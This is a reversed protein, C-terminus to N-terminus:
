TASKLWRMLFEENLDVNDLRTLAARKIWKPGWSDYFSQASDFTEGTQTDFIVPGSKFREYVMSHLAGPGFNVSVEGRAGVPQDKIAKMIGVTMDGDSQVATRGIGGGKEVLDMLPTTTTSGYKKRVAEKTVKIVAALPGTANPPDLDKTTAGVLGIANQGTGLSSKTAAVDYGRRRMEYAFTCRRCNQKTGLGGYGPNIPQVVMKKIQDLPLDGALEKRRSWPRSKGLALNTKIKARNFDGRDALKITGYAALIAATIAAGKATKKQGTSLKGERKLKADTLARDRAVTLSKRTEGRRNIQYPGLADIRKQIKAARADYKKAKKERSNRLEEDTRRVGWRMGKIGYHELFEDTAEFIM